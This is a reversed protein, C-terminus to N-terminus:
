CRAFTYVRERDKADIEVLAVDAQHEEKSGPAGQGSKETRQDPRVQYRM